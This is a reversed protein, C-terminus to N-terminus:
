TIVYKGNYKKAKLRMRLKPKGMTFPKIGLFQNCERVSNFNFTENTELNTLTTSNKNGKSFTSPSLKPIKKYRFRYGKCQEHEFTAVRIISTVHVNLENSCDVLSNYTKYFSGDKLYVHIKKRCSPHIWGSEKKKRLAHKIKQKTEETVHKFPEGGGRDDLNTLRHQYKTILGREVAHSNKWGIVECLKRMIPQKGKKLCSNIWNHVHSLSEQKKIKHRVKGMHYQLRENLTLRTRGIYRVKLTFPDVLCYITVKLKDNEM